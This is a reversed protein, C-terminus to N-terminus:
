DCVSREEQPFTALLMNAFTQNAVLPSHGSVYSQTSIDVGALEFSADIQHMLSNVHSEFLGSALMYRPGAIPPAAEPASRWVISAAAVTGFLAPNRLGTSLAWAGGSSQGFLARRAPDTAAGFENEIKPIVEDLFFAEYAEFNNDERGWLYDRSRQDDGRNEQSAPISGGHWLGVLIVPEILCNNIMSQAVQAYSGTSQGDAMYIVPHGTRAALEHPKYVSVRRESGLATSNISTVFLSDQPLPARSVPEIARPGRYELPQFPTLRDPSDYPFPVVDLFAEDLRPIRIALYWLDSDDVRTMPEQISCCLMVDPVSRRAAVVFLGNEVWFTEDIGDLRTGLSEVIFPAEILCYSEDGACEYNTVDFKSSMGLIIAVFILLM